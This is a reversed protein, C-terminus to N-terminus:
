INKDKENYASLLANTMVYIPILVALLGLSCGWIQETDHSLIGQALFYILAVFAILLIIAINTAQRMSYSYNPHTYSAKTYWVIAKFIKMCIVGRVRACSTRGLM